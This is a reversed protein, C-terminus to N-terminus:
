REEVREFVVADWHLEEGIRYAAMEGAVGDALHVDVAAPGVPQVLM